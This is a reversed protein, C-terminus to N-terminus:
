TCRENQELPLSEPMEKLKNVNVMSPTGLIVFLDSYRVAPPSLEFVLALTLRLRPNFPLKAATVMGNLETGFLARAVRPIHDHKSRLLLM